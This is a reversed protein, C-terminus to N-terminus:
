GRPKVAEMERVTEPQGGIQLSRRRVLTTRVEDKLSCFGGHYFIDFDREGFVGCRTIRGFDEFRLGDFNAM